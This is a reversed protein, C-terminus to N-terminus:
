RRALRTMVSRRSVVLLLSCLIAITMSTPEPVAAVTTGAGGSAGLHDRWITYDAADVRLSGNGDAALNSTSWFTRRWVAFDAADVAGDGDYDGPMPMDFVSEPVQWGIDAMAAYDLATFYRRLGPAISPGMVATQSSGNVTSMVSAQWHASGDAATPAPGGYVEEVKPGIFLGNAEDLRTNFSLPAQATGLAFGLLHGLEHIAVTYLDVAGPAPLTNLNTHWTRPQGGSTLTDFTIGGGWRGFDTPYSGTTNPQGRTGVANVFSTIGNANYGGPGGFGLTNGDLNKGGAYIIMTNSAITLDVVTANGAQGPHEFQATWTDAFEQPTGVNYRTGPTIATLNDTFIEFVSAAAELADRRPQPDFFGQTDFQYSINIVIARAPKDATLACALALPLYKGMSFLNRLMRETGNGCGDDGRGTM